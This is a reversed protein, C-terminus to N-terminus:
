QHDFIERISGALVKVSVPKMLYRRAGLRAADGESVQSSYGSCLIIPIDPRIALLAKCLESGPLKPMTQDTIVLDFATPACSFVRLAEEPDTFVSIRYGMQELAIKEFQVIASEDDVVMLRENGKGAEPCGTAPDAQEVPKGAARPLYVSFTSGKGEQSQVDIAGNHSKVIGHVVSLGMGAGKGQEKTTFYPDFIREMVQRAMGKGTDAVQLRLYEGAMLGLKRAAETSLVTNDLRVTLTGGNEEMAHNANTCLNLLVQHLQNHDALVPWCDEAFEHNIAVTTPLTARLLKLAEEVVLRPNIKKRQLEEKRSFALIQQVLGKARLSAQLVEGLYSSADRCDERAELEEKALETYGLIAALINNFDHAIGGALAGIAEMKQSQRLQAELQRREEDARRREIESAAKAAVIEMIERLRSPPRMPKSSTVCLTGVVQQRTNRLPIGAYGEARFEALMRHDPFYSGVDKPFCQYGKAVVLGCPSNEVLPFSTNPRKEGGIYCSLTHVQGGELVGLVGCDADLLDRLGELIRDFCEDGTTGVIGHVLTTIALDTLRQEKRNRAEELERGVVPVLRSLKDKMVYDRAGGRMVETATVEGVAGSVLIFPLDVGHQRVIELAEMGSFGPMSYDSLVLDWGQSDLAERLAAASEVRASVLDYGGKRLARLILAADDESDEVLLVRLGNNM